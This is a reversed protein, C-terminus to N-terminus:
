SADKTAKIAQLSSLCTECIHNETERPPKEEWGTPWAKWYLGVLKQPDFTERCLNCSYSRTVSMGRVGQALARIITEIDAIAKFIPYFHQPMVANGLAKIADLDAPIGDHRGCVHPLAKRQFADVLGSAERYPNPAPHRSQGREWSGQQRQRKSHAVIAIRRREHFAGVASAPIDFARTAYGLSELDTLVNDLELNVIGVVNEGVVWDPGLEEVLRRYEPWLHRDDDRGLQKGSTSYPQCPFGGTILGVPEHIDSGKLTMVDDFIPVNPWHKRLVKQCFQDRECFAVTRMGAWEAALDLGGIGSFLSLVNM